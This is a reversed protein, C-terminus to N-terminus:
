LNTLSATSKLGSESQRAQGLDCLGAARRGSMVADQVRCFLDGVAAPSPSHSLLLGIEKRPISHQTVLVLMILDKPTSGEVAKSFAEV